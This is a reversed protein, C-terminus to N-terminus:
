DEGKVRDVMEQHQIEAEEWTSCRLQEQDHAGGFVMTEFLMPPGDRDFQHDIGLFVTSIWAEGVSTEAVRRDGQWNSHEERFCPVVKKDELIYYKM